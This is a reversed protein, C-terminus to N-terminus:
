KTEKKYKELLDIIQQKLEYNDPFKKVINIKEEFRFEDPHSEKNWNEPQLNYLIIDLMKKARLSGKDSKMYHYAANIYHATSLRIQGKENTIDGYLRYAEGSNHNTKNEINVLKKTAGGIEINLKEFEKIKEFIKTELNRIQENSSDRIAIVQAFNGIVIFTALIGVFTLVISESTIVIHSINLYISAGLLIISCGFLWYILIQHNIKKM